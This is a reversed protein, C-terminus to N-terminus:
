ERAYQYLPLAKGGVVDCVISWLGMLVLDITANATYEEVSALKDISKLENTAFKRVADQATQVPKGHRGQRLALALLQTQKLLWADGETMLIVQLYSSILDTQRTHLSENIAVKLNARVKSLLLKRQKDLPHDTPTNNVFRSLAGTLLIAVDRHSKGLRLCHVLPLVGGHPTVLLNFAHDRAKFLLELDKKELARFIDFAQLPKAPPLTRGPQFQTPDSSSTGNSHPANNASRTSEASPSALPSQFDLESSMAAELNAARASTKAEEFAYAEIRQMSPLRRALCEEHPLTAQFDPSFLTATDDHAKAAEPKLQKLIRCLEDAAGDEARSLFFIPM